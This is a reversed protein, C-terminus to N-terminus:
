GSRREGFNSPDGPALSFIGRRTRFLIISRLDQIKQRYKKPGSKFKKVSSPTSGKKMVPRM